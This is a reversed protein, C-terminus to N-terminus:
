VRISYKVNSSHNNSSDPLLAGISGAAAAALSAKTITSRETFHLCLSDFVVYSLGCDMGLEPYGKMAKPVVVREDESDSEACIESLRQRTFQPLTLAVSPIFSPLDTPIRQQLVGVATGNVSAAGAMLQNNNRVKINYKLIKRNSLPVEPLRTSGSTYQPQQAKSMNDPSAVVATSSAIAAATKLSHNHSALVAAYQQHRTSTPYIYTVDGHLPDSLSPPDDADRSSSWYDPSVLPTSYVPIRDM